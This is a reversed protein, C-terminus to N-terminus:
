PSIKVGDPGAGGWSATLRQRRRRAVVASASSASASGASCSAPRRWAAVPRGRERIQNKAIYGFVLALISGVWYLWLIGLVM